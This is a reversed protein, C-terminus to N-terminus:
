SHESLFRAQEEEIMRKMEYPALGERGTRHGALVSILDGRSLPKPEELVLSTNTPDKWASEEWSYHPQPVNEEGGRAYRLGLWEPMEPQDSAPRYGGTVDFGVSMGHPEPQFPNKPEDKIYGQKIAKERPIIGLLTNDESWGLKVVGKSEWDTLAKKWIEPNGQLYEQIYARREQMERKKKPRQVGMESAMVALGFAGTYPFAVGGYSALLSAGMNGATWGLGGGMDESAGFGSKEMVGQYWKQSQQAKQEAEAFEKKKADIESRMRNYANMSRSYSEAKMSEFKAKSEQTQAIRTRQVEALQEEKTKQTQQLQSLKQLFSGKQEKATDEMSTQLFQSMFYPSYAEEGTGLMRGKRSKLLNQYAQPPMAVGGVRGRGTVQPATYAM